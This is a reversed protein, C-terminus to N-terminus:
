RALPLGAIMNRAGAVGRLEAVRGLHADRKSWFHAKDCVPCRFSTGVWADALGKWTAADTAMGTSVAQGTSPCNIIILPM